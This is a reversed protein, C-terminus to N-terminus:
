HWADIKQWVPAVPAESERGDNLERRCRLVRRVRRRQPERPARDMPEDEMPTKLM